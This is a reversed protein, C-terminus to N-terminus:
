KIYDKMDLYIKGFKKWLGKIRKFENLDKM